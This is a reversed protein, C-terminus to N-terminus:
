LYDIYHKLTTTPSSHGLFRQAALLGKTQAVNTAYIKRLEHVPKKVTLGLAPLMKTVWFIATTVDDFNYLDGEVLPINRTKNSKTIKGPIQIYGNQIWNTHFYKIETKRLGYKMALHLVLKIDGTSVEYLDEIAQIIFKPPLTWQYSSAGRRITKPIPITKLEKLKSIVDKPYSLEYQYYYLMDNSFLSKFNQYYSIKTTNSLRKNKFFNLITKHNLKLIDIDISSKLIKNTSCINVDVSRKKPVYESNIYDEILQKFTIM